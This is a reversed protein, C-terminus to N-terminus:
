PCMAAFDGSGNAETGDPCTPDEFIGDALVSVTAGTFDARTFTSGRAQTVGQFRTGRFQPDTLTLRTLFSSDIVADDFLTGTGTADSITTSSLFAGTFDTENLSAAALSGILAERFSSGDLANVTSRDSSFIAADDFTSKSLDSELIRVGELRAGTFDAGVLVVREFTTGTMFPTQGDGRFSAAGDCVWAPPEGADGGRNVCDVGSFDVDVFEAGSLDARTFDVGTARVDEFRAGRLDAETFNADDLDVERFEVFRLDAGQCDPLCSAGPVEDDNFASEAPESGGSACAGLALAVTLALAPAM